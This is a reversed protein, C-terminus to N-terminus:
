ALMFFTNAFSLILTHGTSLRTIWSSQFIKIYALYCKWKILIVCVISQQTSGAPEGCAGGFDYVGQYIMIEHQEKPTANSTNKGNMLTKFQPWENVHM